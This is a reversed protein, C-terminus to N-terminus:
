SLARWLLSTGSALLVVLVLKQFRQESVRARLSNGILQGLAVPLIALLSLMLLRNDMIGSVYLIVSWPVVASVYLFSISSVFQNKSIGKVSILYLILMPGFMSSLGGIVGSCLGFLVGGPKVWGDPIHLKRPSAQLLTFVIVFVGVVLLLNREDIGALIKVGVFTGGLVMIFTPWFRDVLRDVREAQAFQWINAVVVPMAMLVVAEHAPLVLTMMPVTLLPTGVGLAGKILGGAALAVFCWAVVM